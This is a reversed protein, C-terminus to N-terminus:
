GLLAVDTKQKLDTYSPTSDPPADPLWLTFTSGSGAETELTLEGGLLRAM